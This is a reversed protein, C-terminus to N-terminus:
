SSWIDGIEVKGPMGSLFIITFEKKPDNDHYSITTTMWSVTAESELVRNKKYGNSVLMTHSGFHTISSEIDNEVYSPLFLEPYVEFASEVVSKFDWEEFKESRHRYCGNLLPELVGVKYYPIANCDEIINEIIVAVKTHSLSDKTNADHLVRIDHIIADDLDIGFLINLDKKNDIVWHNYENVNSSEDTPTATNQDFTCGVLLVCCLVICGIKMWVTRRM